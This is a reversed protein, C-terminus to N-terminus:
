LCKVIHVFVRGVGIELAPYIGYHAVYEYVVVALHHAVLCKYVVGVIEKVQVARLFEIVVDRFVIVVALLNVANYVAEGAFVAYGKKHVQRAVFVAFYGLAEGQWQACHFAAYEEGALVQLAQKLIVPSNTKCDKPCSISYTFLYCFFYFGRTRNKKGIQLPLGIKRM